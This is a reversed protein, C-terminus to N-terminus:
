DEAQETEGDLIKRFGALVEAVAEEIADLTDDGYYQKFDEGGDLTAPILASFKNGFEELDVAQKASGGRNGGHKGKKKSDSVDGGRALTLADGWSIDGAALRKNLKKAVTGKGDTDKPFLLRVFKSRLSYATANGDMSVESEDGDCYIKALVTTLVKSMEKQEYDHEDRIEIAADLSDFYSKNAAETLEASKAFVKVLKAASTEMVKLRAASTAASEEKASASSKTSENAKVKPM